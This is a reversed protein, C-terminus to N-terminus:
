FIAPLGVSKFETDECKKELKYLKNSWLELFSGCFENVVNELKCIKNWLIALFGGHFPSFKFYKIELQVSTRVYFVREEFLM